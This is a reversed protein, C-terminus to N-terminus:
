PDFDQFNPSGMQSSGWRTVRWNLRASAWKSILMRQFKPNEANQLCFVSLQLYFFLLFIIDLDSIMFMAMLFVTFTHELVALTNKDVDTNVSIYRNLNSWKRGFKTEMVATVHGLTGLITVYLTEISAGMSHGFRLKGRGVTKFSYVVLIEKVCFRGNKEPKWIVSDRHHWGQDEFSDYLICEDVVANHGFNLKRHKATIFKYHKSIKIQLFNAPLFLPVM